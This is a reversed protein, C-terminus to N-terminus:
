SLPSLEMHVIPLNRTIIHISWYRLSYKTKKGPIIGVIEVGYVLINKRQVIKKRSLQNLVCSM